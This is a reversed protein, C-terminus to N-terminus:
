TCVVHFGLSSFSASSVLQQGLVAMQYVVLKTFQLCALLFEHTRYDIIAQVKALLGVHLLFEVSLM